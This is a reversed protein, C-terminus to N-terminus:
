IIKHKLAFKILGVTNKLNTKKILSKRYTTVTNISLNLIEAIEVSSYEQVILRLVDIERGTLSDTEDNEPPREGERITQGFMLKFLDKRVDDSFYESGGYVTKIARVIQNGASSKSLFGRAGLSVIEQIFRTDDYSSLVIIQPPNRLKKIKKLVEIGGIVPMNIDLVLIDATNYEFWDLVEKGTLSYDVVRINDETNLVAIIGEILIKHDDAIHVQIKNSM